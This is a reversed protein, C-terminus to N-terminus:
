RRPAPRGPRRRRSRRRSSRTPRCSRRSTSSCASPRSCRGGSRRTASRRRADARERARLAVRRRADRRSGSSARGRGGAGRRRARARGDTAGALHRARADDSTATRALTAHARRLEDPSALRSSPRPLSRTPSGSRGATWPPSAPRSRPSSRRRRGPIPAAFRKSADARGCRRRAPAGRPDGAAAAGIRAEVLAGLTDPIPLREGPTVVPEPDRRADRAIELAYFPNGGSAEEIRVLVLRPFSRGFRALFLQHLAALPLPGVHLRERADTRSAPRSSSRSAARSAACRWSCARPRDGLRRIPTPWSRRRARRRAVARRRDGPGAAARERAGRLLTATAVSLTRQDPLQGSPEARLIPSRSPTASSPPSRRWDARRRGDSLLDTLGGLTLERESEAPASRLVSAGQERAREIAARWIATKGIGAEGDIVLSPRAPASGSSSGISPRWSPRVDSSTPQSESRAWASVRRGAVPDWPGGHRASRIGILPAAPRAQGDGPGADIADQTAQFDIIAVVVQYGKAKVTLDAPPRGARSPRTASAPSRRATAGGGAQWLSDDYTSVTLGVSQPTARRARGNAIPSTTATRSPGRTSRSGPRRSSRRSPSSGARTRPRIGGAAPAPAHQRRVRKGTADSAARPRPAALAARPLTAAAPRRRSHLSRSCWRPRRSSPPVSKPVRM